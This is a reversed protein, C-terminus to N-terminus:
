EERSRNPRYGSRVREMAEAIDRGRITPRKGSLFDRRDTAKKGWEQRFDEAFTVGNRRNHERLGSRGHIISGDVSSVFDQIDPCIIPGRDRAYEEAYFQDKPILEKRVPCFVYSKKPM